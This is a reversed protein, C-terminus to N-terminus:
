HDDQASQWEVFGRFLREKEDADTIAAAVPAAAAVSAAPRAARGQTQVTRQPRTRPASLASGHEARPPAGACAPLALLLSCLGLRITARFAWPSALRM